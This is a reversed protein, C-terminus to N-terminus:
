IDELNNLFILVEDTNRNRNEDNWKLMFNVRKLMETRVDNKEVQIRYQFYEDSEDLGRM